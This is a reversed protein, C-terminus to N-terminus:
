DHNPYYMTVLRAPSIGIFYLFRLKWMLLVTSLLGKEEWRRSSTEALVKPHAPEGGKSRLLKCIAIDEMLAIVPFGNMSEFLERQVFIAQDGTCVSTLRSRINMMNGILRYGFRNNSLRINFWGWASTHESLALNILQDAREPLTTDVHLFLLVEGTALSAGHNMQRARGVPSSDVTDAFNSVKALTDDSSGGDVVILEHGRERYAQLRQLQSVILGSENRVPLIISLKKM